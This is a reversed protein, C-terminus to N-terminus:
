PRNLGPRTARKPVQRGSAWDMLRLLPAIFIRHLASEPEPPPQPKM